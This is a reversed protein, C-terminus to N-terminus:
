LLRPSPSFRKLKRKRITLKPRKPRCFLWFVVCNVSHQKNQLLVWFKRFISVWGRNMIASSSSWSFSHDIRVHSPRLCWCDIGFAKGKYPSGQQRWQKCKQENAYPKRASPFINSIFQSWSTLTGNFNFVHQFIQSKRDLIWPSITKWFSCFIQTAFTSILEYMRQLIKLKWDRTACSTNLVDPEYENASNIMSHVKLIWFQNIQLEM